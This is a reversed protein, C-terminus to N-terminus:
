RADLLEAQHVDHNLFLQLLLLEIGTVFLTYGVMIATRRGLLCVEDAFRGVLVFRCILILIAVIQLLHRAHDQDAHHVHKKLVM